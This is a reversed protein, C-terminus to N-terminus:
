KSFYFITCVWVKNKVFHSLVLACTILFNGNSRYIARLGTKDSLFLVSNNREMTVGEKLEWSWSRWILVKVQNERCHFYYAFADCVFDFTILQSFVQLTYQHCFTLILLNNLCLCFGTSFHPFYYTCIIWLIYSLTGGINLLQEVESAILFTFTYFTILYEKGVLNVLNLFIFIVPVLILTTKSISSM